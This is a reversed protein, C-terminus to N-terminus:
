SELLLALDASARILVLEGRRIVTCSTRMRRGLDISAAFLVDLFRQEDNGYRWKMGRKIRRTAQSPSFKLSYNRRAIGGIPNM